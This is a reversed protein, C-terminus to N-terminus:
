PDNSPLFLEWVRLIWKGTATKIVHRPKWNRVCYMLARSCGLSCSPKNFSTSHGTQESRQWRGGYEQKLIGDITMEGLYLGWEQRQECEVAVTETHEQSRGLSGKSNWLLRINERSASNMIIRKFFFDRSLYLVLPEACRRFKLSLMLSAMNISGKYGRYTSHTEGFGSTM